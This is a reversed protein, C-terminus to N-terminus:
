AQTKPGNFSLPVNSGGAGEVNKIKGFTAEYKMINDQLILMLRKVNEPTMIIRSQVEAKPLGPMLKIFDILFESSSNAVVVLNSYIGQAVENTIGINIQGKKEEQEM